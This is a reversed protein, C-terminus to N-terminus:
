RSYGLFANVPNVTCDSMIRSFRVSRVFNHVGDSLPLVVGRAAIDEVSVFDSSFGVPGVVLASLIFSVLGFVCFESIEIRYILEPARRRIVFNSYYALDIHTPM